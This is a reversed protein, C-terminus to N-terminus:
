GELNWTKSFHNAAAQRWDKRWSRKLKQGVYPATFLLRRMEGSGLLGSPTDLQLVFGTKYSTKFDSLILLFCVEAFMCFCIPFGLDLYRNLGGSDVAWILRIDAAKWIYPIRDWIDGVPIDLVLSLEVCRSPVLNPFTVPTRVYHDM